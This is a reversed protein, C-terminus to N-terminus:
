RSTPALTLWHALPLEDEPPVHVVADADGIPNGPDAGDAAVEAHGVGEEDVHPPGGVEALPQSLPHDARLGLEGVLIRHVQNLLGPPRPEQELGRQGPGDPEAEHRHELLQLVLPVLETEVAAHIVHDPTAAEVLQGVGHELGVHVFGVAVEHPVEPSGVAEGRRPEMGVGPHHPHDPLHAEGVVAIRDAALRPTGRGISAREPVPGDRHREAARPRHREQFVMAGPLRRLALHQLLQVPMQLSPTQHHQVTVGAVLAHALLHQALHERADQLVTEVEHGHLRERGPEIIRTSLTKPVLGSAIM